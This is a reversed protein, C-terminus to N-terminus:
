LWWWRITYHTPTHISSLKTVTNTFYVTTCLPVCDKCGGGDSPTTHLHPHFVTHYSHQHLVCHYVTRVDVVMQHHLTYTHPHFVTQYSHQHLVCHDVTRVVVVMQHHLTYTHYSITTSTTFSYINTFHDVTRVIVM